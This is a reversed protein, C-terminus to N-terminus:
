HWIVTYILGTLLVYSVGLSIDSFRDFKRTDDWYKRILAMDSTHLYRDYNDDAINKFYFALWHATLSGTLFLFKTRLNTHLVAYTFSSEQLESIQPAIPSLKYLQPGPKRLTISLSEFGSKTLLFARGRNSEFPLEIPTLGVVRNAARLRAHYPVSNIISFHQFRFSLTTDQGPILNVTRRINAYDWIGPYPSLAEVLHAGPSIAVRYLPTKGLFLSDLRIEVGPPDSHLTLYAAPSQAQALLSVAGLLILIFSKM